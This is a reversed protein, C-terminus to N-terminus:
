RRGNCRTQWEYSNVVTIPLDRRALPQQQAYRGTTVVANTWSSHGVQRQRQAQPQPAGQAYAGQAHAGQDYSGYGQPQQPNGAPDYEEVTVQPYNYGSM